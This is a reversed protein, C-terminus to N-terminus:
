ALIKLIDAALVVRPQFNQDTVIARGIVGFLYTTSGGRRVGSNPVDSLGLIDPHVPVVVKAHILRAALEQAEKMVVVTAVTAEDALVDREQMPM